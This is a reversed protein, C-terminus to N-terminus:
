HEIIVGNQKARSAPWERGIGVLELGRGGDGVGAAFFFFFCVNRGKRRAATLHISTKAAIKSGLQV